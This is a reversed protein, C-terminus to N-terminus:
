NFLCTYMGKSLSGLFNVLSAFVMGSFYNLKKKYDSEKLMRAFTDWTFPKYPSSFFLLYIHVCNFNNELFHYVHKMQMVSKFVVCKLQFDVCCVCNINCLLTSHINMKTILIYINKISSTCVFVFSNHSIINNNNDKQVIIYFM